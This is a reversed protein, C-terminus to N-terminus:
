RNFKELIKEAIERQKESMARGAEVQASVSEVFDVEWGTLGGDIECLSEVRDRDADIEESM